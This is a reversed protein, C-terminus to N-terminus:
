TPSLLHGLGYIMEYLLSEEFDHAAAQTKLDGFELIDWFILVPIEALGCPTINIFIDMDGKYDQM